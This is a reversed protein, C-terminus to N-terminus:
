GAARARNDRRQERRREAKGRACVGGPGHVVARNRMLPELLRAPSRGAALERQLDAQLGVDGADLAGRLLGAVRLRVGIPLVQRQRLQLALPARRRRHPVSDLVGELGLPDRGLDVHGVQSRARGDRDALRLLHEARLPGDVVRGRAVLEDRQRHVGRLQRLPHLPVDVDNGAHPQDDVVRRRRPCAFGGRLRTAAARPRPGTRRPCASASPCRRATTRRCSRGRGREGGGLAQERVLDEVRVPDRRQLRGAQASLADPERDDALRGRRGRVDILEAVAETRLSGRQLDM